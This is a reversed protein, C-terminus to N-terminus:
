PETATSRGRRRLWEVTLDREIRLDDVRALLEDAHALAARAVVQTLTSLHYPLRVRQLDSEHADALVWVESLDTIEFPTDGAAIRSGQVVNKATVVGSIPSM